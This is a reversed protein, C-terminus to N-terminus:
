YLWMVLGFVISGGVACNGLVADGVLGSVAALMLLVSYGICLIRLREDTDLKIKKM